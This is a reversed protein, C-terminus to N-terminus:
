NQKKRKKLVKCNENMAYDWSGDINQKPEYNLEKLLSEIARQWKFMKSWDGTAKAYILYRMYEWYVRPYYHEIVHVGSHYLHGFNVCNELTTKGGERVPVIHHVTLINRLTIPTGAMCEMGYKSILLKKIQKNKM